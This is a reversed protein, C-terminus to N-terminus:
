ICSNSISYFFLMGVFLVLYIPTEHTGKSVWFEDGITGDLRLYEVHMTKYTTHIKTYGYTSERHLSWNPKPMIWPDATAGATGALIHITSIPDSYQHKHKIDPIKNYVPYSREYGHDHGTIALDVRYKRLLHEIAGRFKEDGGGHGTSSSYMPSHFCMIIWPRKLRDRNAARLDRELWAYQESDELYDDYSSMMVVHAVAYNVSYYYSPKTLTSPIVLPMRYRNLFSPLAAPKVDWNGPIILYPRTSAVPEVLHGWKDWVAEELGYSLDGPHLVITPEQDESLM